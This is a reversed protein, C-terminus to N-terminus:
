DDDKEGDEHKDDDDGDEGSPGAHCTWCGVSTGAPINLVHDELRYHHTTAAKSASTGRLNAGHCSSCQNPNKRYANPHGRSESLLWTANSIPHMQSSPTPTPNPQTPTPNNSRGNGIIIRVLKSSQLAPTTGTEKAILKINYTRNQQSASPQWQITASWSGSVPENQILTAGKPLKSTMLKLSDGENDSATFTLTLPESNGIRVPSVLTGIVPAGKKPPSPTTAPTDPCFVNLINNGASYAKGKATLGARSENGAAGTHCTTCAYAGFNPKSRGATSCQDVVNTSYSPMALLPTSLCSFLLVTRTSFTKFRHM